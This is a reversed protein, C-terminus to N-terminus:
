IHPPIRINAYRVLSYVLEAILTALLFNEIRQQNQAPYIKEEEEYWRLEVLEHIRETHGKGNSEVDAIFHQKKM